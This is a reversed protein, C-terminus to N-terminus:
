FQYALIFHSNKLFLIFYDFFCDLLNLTAETPFLVLYLFLSPPSFVQKKYFGKCDRQHNKLRTKICVLLMYKKKKFIKNKREKGLAGRYM